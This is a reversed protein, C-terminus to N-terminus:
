ICKDYKIHLIHWFPSMLCELSLHNADVDVEVDGRAFRVNGGVGAAANQIIDLNAAGRVANDVVVENVVDLNNAGEASM